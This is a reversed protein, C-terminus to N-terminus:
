AIDCAFAKTFWFLVPLLYGGVFNPLEIASLFGRERARSKSQM